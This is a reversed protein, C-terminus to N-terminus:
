LTYRNRLLKWDLSSWNLLQESALPVRQCGKGDRTNAVEAKWKNLGFGKCDKEIGHRRGYIVIWEHFIFNLISLKDVKEDDGSQELGGPSSFYGRM